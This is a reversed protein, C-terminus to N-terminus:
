VGAPVTVFCVAHRRCCAPHKGPFPHPQQGQLGATDRQGLPYDTPYASWRGQEGCLHGYGGLRNSAFAIQQGDPSWVPHTDHAPNTTIQNARGGTTPVTYIDGKYSFTIQSGDPSIACYRMWAAEEAAYANLSLLFAAVGLLKKKM